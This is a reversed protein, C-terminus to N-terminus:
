YFTMVQKNNGNATMAMRKGQVLQRLTQKEAKKGKKAKFGGDTRTLDSDSDAVPAPMKRAKLPSVFVLEDEDEELDAHYKLNSGKKEERPKPTGYGFEEV